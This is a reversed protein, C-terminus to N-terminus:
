FVQVPAICRGARAIFLFHTERLRYPQLELIREVERVFLQDAVHAQPAMIRKRNKKVAVVVKNEIYRETNDEM